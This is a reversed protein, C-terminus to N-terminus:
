AEKGKEADIKDQLKSNAELLEEWTPIPADGAIQKLVKYATGATQIAGNIIEIIMPITFIM